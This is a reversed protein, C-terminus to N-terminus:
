WCFVFGLVRHGFSFFGIKRRSRSTPLFVLPLSGSCFGFVPVTFWFVSRCVPIRPSGGLRPFFDRPTSFVPDQCPSRLADGTSPRGWSSDFGAGSCCPFQILCPSSLDLSVLDFHHFCVASVLDLFLNKWQFGFMISMQFVFTV